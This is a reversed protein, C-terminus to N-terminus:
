FTKKTQIMICAYQSPFTKTSTLETEFTCNYLHKIFLSFM